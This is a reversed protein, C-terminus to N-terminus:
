FPPTANCFCCLINKFENQKVKQNYIPKSLPIACFYLHEQQPDSFEYFESTRLTYLPLLIEEWIVLPYRDPNEYLFGDAQKYLNRIPPIPSYPNFFM